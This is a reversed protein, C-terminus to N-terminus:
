DLAVGDGMRLISARADHKAVAESARGSALVASLRNCITSEVIRWM